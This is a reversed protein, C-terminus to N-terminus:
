MELQVSQEKFFSFLKEGWAIANPEISVLDSGVDYMKGDKKFLGLSIRKDTVTLGVRFPAKSVLIKFNPYNLLQKM